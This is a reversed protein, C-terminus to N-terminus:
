QNREFGDRIDWIDSQFQNFCEQNCYRSPKGQPKKVFSVHKQGPPIAKKCSRCRTTPFSDVAEYNLGKGHYEKAINQGKKM